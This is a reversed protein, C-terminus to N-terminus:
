QKKVRVFGNHAIVNGGLMEVGRHCIMGEKFKYDTSKKVEVDSFIALQYNSLPGYAMSYKGATTASDSIAFCASNIIYPIGDITGTNGKAVITHFKKGDNTRLQSFAKLDKKNLILTAADEVDEDGGFGFIISDLTNNDIASIGIDTAALIVPSKFIGMLHNTSGDGTLIEKTIKKRLAIRVGNEVETAYSAAPLKEVEETDESYATVKTKSIEAYGFKVDSDNGEPLTGEEATYDGEGYDKVYPQSYSEGGALPKHSVGDILSSVQNFTGKIDTAQYKPLIISSSGVTISRKEILAKGREEMEKNSVAAREEITQGATAASAIPNFGKGTVIASRSEIQGEPNETSNVAQTREDTANPDQANRQEEEEIDAIMGRLEEIDSNLTELESNISRLEVVDECAKSREQLKKKQDQKANLLKLLKNKM